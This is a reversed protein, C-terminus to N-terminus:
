RPPERSSPRTRRCRRCRQWGKHQPCHGMRMSPCQPTRSTFFAKGLTNTVAGGPGTTSLYVPNHPAAADLDDLTPLNGGLGDINWGGVCTIFEGAPLDLEAARATIMQKLEAISTATEIIRVEHGPNLGCRIYHVHSDILGPIVTAGRLNITHSCPGLAEAHGIQSFRGDRIAVASVVPHTPDMTLIRGNVLALDRSGACTASDARAAKGWITGSAAGAAAGALVSKIFERRLFRSQRGDVLAM